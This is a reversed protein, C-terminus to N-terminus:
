SYLKNIGYIADTRFHFCFNPEPLTVETHAGCNGRHHTYTNNTHLTRPPAQLNGEGQCLLERQNNNRSNSQCWSSRTNGIKEEVQEKKRNLKARHSVKKITRTVVDMRSATDQPQNIVNQNVFRIFSRM